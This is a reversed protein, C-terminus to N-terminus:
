GRFGQRLFLWVRPGPGERSPVTGARVTPASCLSGPKLCRLLQPGSLLPVDGSSPPRPLSPGLCSRTKRASPLATALLGSLLAKLPAQLHPLFAAM